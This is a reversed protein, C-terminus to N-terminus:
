EVLAVTKMPFPKSLLLPTNKCHRLSNNRCFLPQRTYIYRSFYLGWTACSGVVRLAYSPLFTVLCFLWPMANPSLLPSFSTFNSFLDDPTFYKKKSRVTSVIKLKLNALSIDALMEQSDYIDTSIYKLQVSDCFYSPSM